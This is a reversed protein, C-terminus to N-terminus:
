KCRIEWSKVRMDLWMSAIARLTIESLEVANDDYKTATVDYMCDGQFRAVFMYGASDHVM